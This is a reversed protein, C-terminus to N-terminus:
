LRMASLRDIWWQWEAAAGPVDDEVDLTRDWLFRVANYLLGVDLLRSWLADPLARGLATELCTRYRTIVAEPPRARHGPNGILYCGLDFTAPGAGIFQWDFIAPRLATPFAVNVLRVDGHLLTRPLANGLRALAAAPDRLLAAVPEPARELLKTWGDRVWEYLQSPGRRLHRAAMAPSLVDLPALPPTLWPLRLAEAEWYTAHLRALAALLADEQDSALPRDRPALYLSLDDMLLASEGSEAAWARYPCAFARWVDALAPEALLAAERGVTDGTGSAVVDEALVTRKLVLPVIRGSALRVRLQELSSGSKGEDGFPARGIEAVPGLLAALRAQSSLAAISEVRRAGTAM